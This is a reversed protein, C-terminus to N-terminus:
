DSPKPMNITPKLQPTQDAKVCASTDVTRIVVAYGDLSKSALGPKVQWLDIGTIWVSVRENTGNCDGKEEQL